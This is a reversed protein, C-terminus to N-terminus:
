YRSQLSDDTLLHKRVEALFPAQDPLPREQATFSAVALACAATVLAARRM